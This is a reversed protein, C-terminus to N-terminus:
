EEKLEAIKEIINKYHSGSWYVKKCGSCYWFRENRDYVKEPVKGKVQIKEIPELMQNCITCRSLIMDDNIDCHHLVSLLQDDLDTSQIEIVKINEKRGRALLEKDRSILVRKEKEAVELLEDDTIDASAYFTDFGLLRLWKALSGLMQDCLLRM